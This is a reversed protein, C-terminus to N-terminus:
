KYRNAKSLIGCLPILYAATKGTGSPAVALM